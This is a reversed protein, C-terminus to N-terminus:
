DRLVLRMARLLRENQQPTGVSIRLHQKLGYPGLPRVIVGQRLLSEFATQGDRQIDVFVFNAQSDPASFGLERLGLIIKERGEANLNKGAQVHAEDDLAALAAVQGLSTTNFAMRGRNLYDILEASGVGYGVRLGALGYIKSFTRLVLLRPHNALYDFGNPYDTATVYEVYAEDLAVVVDKPISGLFEELEDRTNYTGTPNNPNAIFVLKSRQDMARAMAQLDFRWNKLPVDRIERGAALTSLKYAIFSPNAFILHEDARICTRVLLEIIENMGNGIIIQEPAVKHREALKRKLYFASGDPYENVQLLVKKVAEVALASPGLPNENSALKICGSIGLERETEEVPKGPVYPKLTLYADNVLPLM